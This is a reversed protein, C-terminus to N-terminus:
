DYSSATPLRKFFAPLGENLKLRYDLFLHRATFGSWNEPLLVAPLNPDKRPFPQFEFTLMFRTRFRDEASMDSIALRDLRHQWRDVFGAYEAELGSLDWCKAVLEDDTMLGVRQGNILSVQSRIGMEGTIKDLEALRDHAGVWTGPALNGFGFWVLKKRLENRLPRKEEPLSYIVFQWNGDWNTIPAEFIRKDGEAIIGRGKETIEYRSRRGDKVTEFWGQQKMRSLTTRAARDNVGLLDLLYLLEHTWAWGNKYPLIYDAFLNFLYFQTSGKTRTVTQLDPFMCRLIATRVGTKM